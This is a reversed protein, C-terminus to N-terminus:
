GDNENLGQKPESLTTSQPSLQPGNIAGLRIQQSPLSGVTPEFSRSLFRQSPNRKEWTRPLSVPIPASGVAAAATTTAPCVEQYVKDNVACNVYKNIDSRETTLSLPTVGKHKHRGILGSATLTDVRKHIFQPKVWNSVNLKYNATNYKRAIMSHFVEFTTPMHIQHVQYFFPREEGYKNGGGGGGKELGGESEKKKNKETAYNDIILSELGAWVIGSM